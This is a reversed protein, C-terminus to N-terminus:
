SVTSVVDRVYWDVIEEWNEGGDTRNLEEQLNLWSAFMTEALDGVLLDRDYAENILDLECSKEFMSEAVLRRFADFTKPPGPENAEALVREVEERILSRLQEAKM